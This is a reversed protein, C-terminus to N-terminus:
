MIQFIPLSLWTKFLFSSVISHSILFCFHCTVLGGCLVPGITSENSSITKRKVCFHPCLYLLSTHPTHTCALDSWDYRIRQSAIFQLGGPEEIWPIRWALVSSHIAMGEELADEQGLSWLWTEGAEQMPLHTQKNTQKKGNTADPFVLFLFPWVALLPLLSVSCSSCVFLIVNKQMAFESDFLIGSTVCITASYVQQFPSVFNSWDSSVFWIWLFSLPGKRKPMSCAETGM